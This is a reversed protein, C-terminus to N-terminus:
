ICVKFELAVSHNYSGHPKLVKAGIVDKYKCYIWHLSHSLFNFYLQYYM